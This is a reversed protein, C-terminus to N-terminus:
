RGRRGPSFASLRAPAPTRGDDDRLPEIVRISRPTVELQDLATALAAALGPIQEPRLHSLGTLHYLQGDPARDCISLHLEDKGSPASAWRVRLIRNFGIPLDAIVRGGPEPRLVPAPHGNRWVDYAKTRLDDGNM